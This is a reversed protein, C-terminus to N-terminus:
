SFHVFRTFNILNKILSSFFNNKVKNFFSDTAANEEQKNLSPRYSPRSFNPHPSFLSISLSSSFSIKQFYKRLFHQHFKIMKSSQYNNLTLQHPAFILRTSVVNIKYCGISNHAKL